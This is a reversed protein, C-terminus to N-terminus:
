RAIKIEILRMTNGSFREDGEIEDMLYEHM